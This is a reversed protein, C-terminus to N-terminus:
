FGPEVASALNATIRNIERELRGTNKGRLKRAVLALDRPLGGIRRAFEVTEPFDSMEPIIHTLFTIRQEITLDDVHVAEWPFDNVIDARRTTALIVIRNRREVLTKLISRADWVDDVVILIP